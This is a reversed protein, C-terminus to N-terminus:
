GATDREEAAVAGVARGADLMGGSAVAGAAAATPRVSGLLRERLHSGSWAPEISRLLAATGAVHAAAASTGTRLGYRGQPETSVIAVGPAALHVRSADRNSDAWLRGDADTAAVTIAAPHGYAAPFLEGGDARNGAAAVFLHGAAGAADLLDALAASAPGSWTWSNNSLSVGAALAYDLAAVADSLRGTGDACLVKLPLLRVQWAVGAVGHGDDGAAGIIGAVHTGHGHDDDPVPGDACFDWGHVDDAYGNGDDDSGNGAVEDRNTWVNSALDPHRRDLGTDLVAVVVEAAGTTVEWAAPARIGHEGILGWQEALLPDDAPPAADAPLAEADDAATVAAADAATVITRDPEAYRIAPDTRLRDLVAALDRDPVTWTELDPVSRTARLFAGGIEDRLASRAAEPADATFRVLLRTTEVPPEPSPAPPEPSPAPPEPSPAPPDPEPAPPPASPRPPEPSPSPSPRPSSPAETATPDPPPAARNTDQDQRSTTPPTAASTGPGATGAAPRSPPPAASAQGNSPTRRPATDPDVTGAAELAAQGGARWLSTRGDAGAWSLSVHVHDRHADPGRYPRWGDDPRYSAWIAGDWIVYMIGMRRALAHRNGDADTALLQALVADVAVAADAPVGWDVARGEKHESRPGQACPRTIGLHTTGPVAQSLLAALSTTGPKAVPDCTRQPEYAAYPDVPGLETPLAELVLPPGQRASVHTALDDSPGAGFPSPRTPHPDEATPVPYLRWRGGERHAEFGLFGARTGVCIVVGNVDTTAPGPPPGVPELYAGHRYGIPRDWSVQLRARPCPGAGDEDSGPVAQLESALAIAAAELGANSGALVLLAGSGPEWSTATGDGARFVGSLAPEPLAASLWMAVLVTAAAVGRATRDFV